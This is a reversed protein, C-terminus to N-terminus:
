SNNSFSTSGSFYYDQALYGIIQLVFIFKTRIYPYYRKMKYIYEVNKKKKILYRDSVWQFLSFQNEGISDGQTYCCSKVVPEMGLLVQNVFGLSFPM